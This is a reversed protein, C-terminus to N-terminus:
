QCYKKFFRKTLDKLKDRDEFRLMWLIGFYLLTAMPIGFVITCLSTVKNPGFYLRLLHWLSSTFLALVGTALCIKVLSMGLPHQKILPERKQLCRQLAFSQAVSSVLNATALGITGLPFMLSVSLFLNILFVCWSIKVPSRMDKLSHLGRTALTALSYFPLGLSFLILIPETLRIDGGSFAGWKFFFALIPERLTILGATAPITIALIFRLGRAYAQSLEKREKKAVLRALSPFIVTTVAITFIGLPFEVLRNALYLTAAASANLGFALLRSVMVNIQLIAAGLMGPLFLHLMEELYDSRKMRLHPRWGERWLSVLPTIIQLLGGFLVGTCLFHMQGRASTAFFTGFIGLFSIMSLNLWAASLSATLFRDLVNLTACLVAALCVLLMYPMLIQGLAAGEYWRQPLGPIYKVVFLLLTVLAVLLCLLLSVRSLVKNLFAFAGKKGERELAESFVPILASNLAGEGLLRRFLNPLTFAFIFASNLSTVGFFAFLLIDRLLGLIRSLLTAAAVIFINQLNKAM